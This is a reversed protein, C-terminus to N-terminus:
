QPDQQQDSVIPYGADLYPLLTWIGITGAARTAGTQDIWAASPNNGCHGGIIDVIYPSRNGEDPQDTGNYTVIDQSLDGHLGRKWNLGFRNDRARLRRVAEFMFRNNGGHEKCSAHLLDPRERALQEIIGAGYAPLPLRQGPAPNPARPGPPPAGDITFGQEPGASASGCSFQAVVKGYFTGLPAGSTAWRGANPAVPVSLTAAGGPVTTFDLRQAAAGPIPTWAFQVYTGFASVTFARAPPASCAGGAPMDFRVENSAASEGGGNAASVRLYYTGPNVSPVALQTGPAIPFVGADSAGPTTGARLVMATPTGGGTGLDWTILAARGNAYAALNTPAAPPLFMSTVVVTIENSPVPTAGVMALVRVYYTTPFPAAAATSTVNGVNFATPYVGSVVGAQVIYSTAGAVATWALAVNPGAVQAPNLTPGAQAQIETRGMMLATALLLGSLALGVPLKVKTM